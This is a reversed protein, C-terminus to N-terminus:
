WSVTFLREGIHADLWGVIGEDKTTDYHPARRNQAGLARLIKEKLDDDLVPLNEGILDHVAQVPEPVFSDDGTLGAKLWSVEGIWVDPSDIVARWHSCNTSNGCRGGFPFRCWRSGLTTSFFCALDDETVGQMAHIHLDAAM